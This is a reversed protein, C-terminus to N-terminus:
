GAPPGVSFSGWAAGALVALPLPMAESLNFWGTPALRDRTRGTPTMTPSTHITTTDM